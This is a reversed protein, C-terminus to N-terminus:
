NQMDWDAVMRGTKMQNIWGAEFTDLKGNGNIDGVIAAIESAEMRGTRYQTIWGSEYSDIKGNGDLDGKVAVIIQANPDEAFGEADTANFRYKGDAEVARLRQYSGNVYAIVVCGKDFSVDFTGAVPDVISVAPISEEDTENSRIIINGGDDEQEHLSIISADWKATLTLTGTVPTAFDFATESSDAFWGGFSFGERTPETPEEVTQNHAVHVVTNDTGNGYVFTVDWGLASIVWSNEEIETEGNADSFYKGCTECSWYASNGATDGTAPVAAHATMNHGLAAIVWSNGEIENEGNADSFFKGCTECSWYASSGAATCTADVADHATMKHGLAAIEVEKTQVAFATNTFAASTYTTVGTETCTAEKTVAGTASVTETETKGEINTAERTATVTSYDDAWVYTPEGWTPILEFGYWGEGIAKYEYGTPYTAKLKLNSAATKIPNTGAANKFTCDKDATLTIVPNAGNVGRINIAMSGGEIQCNALTMNMKANASNNKVYYDIAPASPCYLETDTMNLTYIATSGTGSNFFTILGTAGSPTSYTSYSTNNANAPQFSEAEVRVNNLTFPSDQNTSTSNAILAANGTIILTGKQEATSTLTFSSAASTYGDGYFDKAGTYTVTHGNLDYTTKYYGARLSSGITADKQFQLTVAKGWTLANDPGMRTPIDLADEWLAFYEPEFEGVTRIVATPLTTLTRQAYLTTDATLATVDIVGGEVSTGWGDFTYQSVHDIPYTLSRNDVPTEGTAYSDKWLLETGDHSMYTLTFGGVFELTGNNNHPVTGAVPTEVFKVNADFANGGEKASYVGDAKFYLNGGGRDAKAFLTPADTSIINGEGFTVDGSIEFGNGATATSTFTCNEIMHTWTGPYDQRYIIGNTTITCNSIKEIKTLRSSVDSSYMAYFTNGAQCNQTINVNDMLELTTGGFLVATPYANPCDCVLDVDRVWKVSHQSNGSLELVKRSTYGDKKSTDLILKGQGHSSDVAGAGGDDDRLYLVSGGSYWSSVSPEFTGTISCGNLDIWLGYNLYGSEASGKYTVDDTTMDKLLKVRGNDGGAVHTWASRIVDNTTIIQKDADTYSLKRYIISAPYVELVMVTPNTDNEHVWLAHYEGAEPADEYKPRLETATFSDLDATDVSSLVYRGDENVIKTGDVTLGDFWGAFYYGAGPATLTYNDAKITDYDYTNAGDVFTLPQAAGAITVTGPTVTYEVTDYDANTIDIEESISGKLSITATGVADSKVTLSITAFLGTNENNVTGDDAEWSTKTGNLSFSGGFEANGTVAVSEFIESPYVPDFNVMTIGPNATIKIPVTITDGPNVAGTIGSTDVQFAVGDAAFATVSILSLLMILMLLFALTRKM